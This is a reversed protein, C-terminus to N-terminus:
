TSALRRQTSRVSRIILLGAPLVLTIGGLLFIYIPSMTSQMATDGAAAFAICVPATGLTTAALFRWFCLPTLGAVYSVADFSIFPVLRTLFVTLMLANQSRERTLSQALRFNTGALRERGLHRSLLFASGAGVVAGAITLAGGEYTGYLAGAVIAVAGSPIPSVVIGIAVLAVIAIPGFRDAASRIMDSDLEPLWRVVGALFALAFIVILLKM